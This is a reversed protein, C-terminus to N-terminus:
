KQLPPPIIRRVDNQINKEPTAHLGTMGFTEAAAINEERDDIFLTQSPVINYQKILKAYIETEPKIMQVQYSIIGGNFISFFHHKKQIREFAYQPFNSLLYIKYGNSKCEQACRIGDSRPEIYDPVADLFAAITEKEEPFARGFRHVAERKSIIGRDMGLWIDNGIRSKLPHAKFDKRGTIRFFIDAPDWTLLVNGIDFVVTTIKERNMGTM